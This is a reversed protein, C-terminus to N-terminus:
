RISYPFLSVRSIVNSNTSSVILMKVRIDNKLDQVPMKMEDGIGKWTGERIIKNHYNASKSNWLVEKSRCLQILVVFM